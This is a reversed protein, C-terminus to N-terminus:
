LRNARQLSLPMQCFIKAATAAAGSGGPCTASSLLWTFIWRQALPPFPPCFRLGYTEGFTAPITLNVRDNVVQATWPHQHKRRAVRGVTHHSVGTDAQDGADPFKQGVFSVVGIRKPGEEFLVTDPRDDGAFGISLFADTM